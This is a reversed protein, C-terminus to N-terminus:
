LFLVKGKTTETQSDLFADIEERFSVFDDEIFSQTEGAIGHSTLGESGIKNFRIVSVEVIIHNMSEPPEIGGLICKLRKTTSDLIWNLKKDLDNGTIDLLLKLEELM